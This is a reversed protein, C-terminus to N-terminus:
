LHIASYSAIVSVVPASVMTPVAFLSVMLPEIVSESVVNSLMSPPAPVSVSFAIREVVAIALLTVILFTSFMLILVVPAPKVISVEVM